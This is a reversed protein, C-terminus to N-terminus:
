YASEMKLITEYIKRNVPVDVGHKDALAIVAGAFLEVESKRHALGDQRMSPMGDPRLTDVLNVYGDFDDRTIQINEKQAVLIVEKMASQMLDRAEGPKQVTAYTGEYIMLSQNVGVNLMLKCWMRRLIDDELAYPMGIREFLDLVDNLRQKKEASENTIGLCVQGFHAYTVKNGDKITDMGQVICHLISDTGYAAGIIEESTIGNLLSIITTQASVKNRVTHIAAQLGTAKVAFLLLDAPKGTENEDVVSFDCPFGNCFVGDEGFKKIRSKDAVFEVHARGLKKTLFDGYMVGLAGMGVIAINEIKTRKNGKPQSHISRRM